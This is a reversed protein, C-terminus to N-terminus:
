EHEEDEMLDTDGNFNFWEKKDKKCCCKGCCFSMLVTFLVRTIFLEVILSIVLMLLLIGAVNSNFSYMIYCCTCTILCLISTVVLFILSQKTNEKRESEHQILGLDGM